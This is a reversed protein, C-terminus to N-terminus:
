WLNHVLVFSAAANSSRNRCIDCPAVCNSRGGHRNFRRGKHHLLEACGFAGSANALYVAAPTNLPASLADEADVVSSLSLGAMVAQAQRTTLFQRLERFSATSVVERGACRNLTAQRLSRFRDSSANCSHCTITARERSRRSRQKILVHLSTVSPCDIRKYQGSRRETMGSALVTM